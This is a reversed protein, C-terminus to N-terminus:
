KTNPSQLYKMREFEERALQPKGLKQYVRGLQYYSTNDLPKLEISRRFEAAARDYLQMAALVKGRLYFVDPDTPTSKEAQALENLIPAYGAPNAHLMAQAILIHIMPYDPKQMALRRLSEIELSSMSMKRYADALSLYAQAENPSQRLLETLVSVGEKWHDTRVLDRGLPFLLPTSHPINSRGQKLVSVADAYQQSQDYLDALALYSNERSPDLDIAARLHTVAEDRRGLGELSLGAIGAASARVANPLTSQQELPAANRIADEYAGVTNELVALEIKSDAPTNPALRSRLSEALALDPLNSEALFRALASHVQGDRPFRAAINRLNAKMDDIDRLSFDVKVIMVVPLANSPQLREAVRLAERASRFDDAAASAVGLGYFARASAPVLCTEDRYHQAAETFRQQRMANQAARDIAQFRALREASTLTEQNCDSAFASTCAALLALSAIIRLSASQLPPNTLMACFRKNM